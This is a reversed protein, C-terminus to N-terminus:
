SSTWRELAEEVDAWSYAVVARGGAEKIEELTAQQQRGLKNDGAKAEIALFLGQWCCIFDVSRRGYGTQVPMFFWIGRAILGRKIEQKVLNEATM